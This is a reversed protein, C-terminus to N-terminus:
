LVGILWRLAAQPSLVSRHGRSSINVDLDRPGTVTVKNPFLTKASTILNLIDRHSWGPNDPHSRFRIVLTRILSLLSIFLPSAMHLHPLSQFPAAVFRPVGVAVLLQFPCSPDERSGECFSRGHWCRSKPRRAELLILSYVQTTTSWRNTTM